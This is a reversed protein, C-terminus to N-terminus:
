MMFLPFLHRDHITERPAFEALWPLLRAQSSRAQSTLPPKPSIGGVMVRKEDRMVGVQHEIGSLLPERTLLQRVQAGDVM